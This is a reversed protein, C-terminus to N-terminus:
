VGVSRFGEMMKLIAIDADPNGSVYTRLAPSLSKMEAARDAARQSAAWIIAAKTAPQYLTSIPSFLTAM